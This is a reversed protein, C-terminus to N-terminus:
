ARTHTYAFQVYVCFFLPPQREPSDLRLWITLGTPGVSSSGVVILRAGVPPAPAPAVTAIPMFFFQPDWGLKLWFPTAMRPRTPQPGFMSIMNQNM